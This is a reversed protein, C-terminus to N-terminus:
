EKDSPTVGLLLLVEDHLEALQARDRALVRLRELDAAQSPRMSALLATYRDLAELARSLTVAPIAVVPDGEPLQGAVPDSLSNQLMRVQERLGVLTREDPWRSPDDLLISLADMALRSFERAILLRREEASRADEVELLRRLQERPIAVYRTSSPSQSQRAPPEPPRPSDLKPQAPEPDTGALFLGVFAAGLIWWLVGISVPANLMVIAALFATALVGYKFKESFNTYRWLYYAGIPFFLTGTIARKTRLSWNSRWLWVMAYVVAVVPLRPFFVIALFFILCGGLCGGPMQLSGM